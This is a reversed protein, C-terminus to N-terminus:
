FIIKLGENIVKDVAYVFVAFILSTAIVVMTSEKLEERKPWTVKKMEKVIDTFFGIIKNKM